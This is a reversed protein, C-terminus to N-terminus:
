TSLFKATLTLPLKAIKRTGGVGWDSGSDSHGELWGWRGVMMLDEDGETFPETSGNRALKNIAQIVAVPQRQHDLVAGCLM